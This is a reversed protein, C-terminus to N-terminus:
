KLNSASNVKSDEWFHLIENEPYKLPLNIGQMWQEHNKEYCNWCVKFTYSYNKKRTTDNNLSRITDYRYVISKKGKHECHCYLQADLSCQLGVYSKSNPNPHFMIIKNLRKGRLNTYIM